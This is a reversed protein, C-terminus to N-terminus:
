SKTQSQHPCVGMVYYGFNCNFCLLRFGARPKGLVVLWRYYVLDNAFQRKHRRGGGNIHDVNLFCREDVGCCKCKGGYMSLVADRAARLRAKANKTTRAKWQAHKIPDAKVRQWVGKNRDPNRRYYDANYKRYRHLNRRQWNKLYQKRAVLDKYPM